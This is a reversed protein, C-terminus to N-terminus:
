GAAPGLRLSPPRTPDPPLMRLTLEANATAGQSARAILLWGTASGGIVEALLGRRPTLTSFEFTCADAGDCGDALEALGWDVSGGDDLDLVDVRVGAGPADGALRAVVAARETIKVALQHAGPTSFRRAQNSPVPLPASM